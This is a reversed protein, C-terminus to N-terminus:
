IESREEFRQVIVFEDHVAGVVVQAEQFFVIYAVLLFLMGGLLVTTTISEGVGTYLRGVVFQPLGSIIGAFIIVSIGNGIGRETILEGIWVLFMTGATMTIIASLTPLANPGTLEIGTIGGQSQVLILQGYGQVFAMPVTMWHTYINLQKRGQEGEKSLAQLAPVIPIMLQMVISSTIYPYVGMAAVSMNQLAGGSAFNSAAIQVAYGAGSPEASASPPPPDPPPPSAATAPAAAPPPSAARDASVTKEAAPKLQEAPAKQKELRNFYSLDDAAPPPAATTPDSGAAPAPAAATQQPTTPVAEPVANGSPDLGGREVRVGRGVLVGCLFIVVSVVTAAMFLFVLQKGNLQIEHFGDDQVQSAVSASITGRGDARTALPAPLRRELQRSKSCTLIEPVALRAVRVRRTGDGM